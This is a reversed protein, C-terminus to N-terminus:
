EEPAAPRRIDDKTLLVKQANDIEFALQCDVFDAVMILEDASFSGRAFKNRMAQESIGFLQALEKYKKGKMSLLGKIKDSVM